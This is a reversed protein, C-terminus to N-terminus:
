AQRPFFCSGNCDRGEMLFLLTFGLLLKDSCLSSDLASFTASLLPVRVLSNILLENKM